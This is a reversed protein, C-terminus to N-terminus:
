DWVVNLSAPSRLHMGVIEPPPADTDLRVNPLLDLVAATAEVMELKATHIGLCVHPGWGFGLGQSRSRHLDYEDPKDFVEEDRNASGVVLTVGSGAPITVGRLEIEKTCLRGLMTVTSQFRMGEEVANPILSTDERVAELVEPRELLCTMVNLWARTTTEAAAPLMQRMVITIQEDDLRDGEFEARLLHGILDDGKSGEARRTTVLSNIRDYLFASEKKAREVARATQEPNSPNPGTMAPIMSLGARAFEDYADEDHFGMVEYIMRVPFRVAFDALDARRGAVALEEVMRRAVPRMIGVQWNELMRRAFAPNILGRMARHEDGDMGSIVRGLLPEFVDMVVSSSFTETDRLARAVDEYRFLSFMPRKGDASQAMAPLGFETLIDGVMVPTRRRYEAFVPYPDRVANAGGSEASLEAVVENTTATM